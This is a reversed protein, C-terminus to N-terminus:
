SGFADSLVAWVTKGAPDLQVGHRTSYLDLLRLGRGTSVSDSFGATVPLLPSGDTVSLVVEGAAEHLTVRAPTGAHLVVNALLETVLLAGAEEEAHRGWDALTARVFRRAGPVAELAPPVILEASRGTRPPVAQPPLPQADGGGDAAGGRDRLLRGERLQDTVETHVVLVDARGPIPEARLRFWREQQPSHCPYDLLARPAHGTVVATLAASAVAAVDDGAAAARETTRLYNAGVGCDPGAGNQEGFRRWARNVALIMGDPTLVACESPLAHFASATLTPTAHSM